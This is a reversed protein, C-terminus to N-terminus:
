KESVAFGLTNLWVILLQGGGLGWDVATRPLCHLGQDRTVGPPATQDPNESKVLKRNKDM